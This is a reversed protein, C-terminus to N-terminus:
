LFGAVTFDSRWFWLQSLCLPLRLLSSNQIDTALNRCDATCYKALQNEMESNESSLLSYHLKIITSKQYWLKFKLLPCGVQLARYFDCYVGYLCRFLLHASNQSCSPWPWPRDRGCYLWNLWRQLLSDRTGLGFFSHVRVNMACNWIPTCPM